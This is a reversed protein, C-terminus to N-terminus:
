QTLWRVSRINYYIVCGDSSDRVITDNSSVGKPAKRTGLKNASYGRNEALIPPDYLRVACTTAGVTIRYFLIIM